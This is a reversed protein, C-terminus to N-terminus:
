VPHVRVHVAALSGRTHPSVRHCAEQKRTVYLLSDPRSGVLVVALGPPRKIIQTIQAVERQIEETWVQAVRKGDLVNSGPKQQAIDSWRRM